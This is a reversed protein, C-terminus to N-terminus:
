CLSLKLVSCHAPTSLRRVSNASMNARDTLSTQATTPPSCRRLMLGLTVKLVFTCCLRIVGDACALRSAVRLLRSAASTRRDMLTFSMLHQEGTFIACFACKFWTSLMVSSCCWMLSSHTLAPIVGCKSKGGRGRGSVSSVGGHFLLRFHCKQM